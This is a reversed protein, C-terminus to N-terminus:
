DPQGDRDGKGFGPGHGGRGGFLVYQPDIGNSKAWADLDTRKKEMAARRETATMNKKAAFEQERNAEMESHKALILQKQAATIKGDTVLQTLRAETETKMEAQRQTREETRYQDVVTQVETQKLGFKEAIRTALGNSSDNGQAFVSTASFAGAGLLAILTATLILQKKM